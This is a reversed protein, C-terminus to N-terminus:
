KSVEASQKQAEQLDQSGSSTNRAFNIDEDRNSAGQESGFTSIVFIETKHHETHGSGEHGAKHHVNAPTSQESETYSPKSAIGFLSGLYQFFGEKIQRDTSATKGEHALSPLSSAKKLEEQTTSRSLEETSLNKNECVSIRLKKLLAATTKSTHKPDNDHQFVAWRGLRQLSPIMSQKLIDCYMNANMTGEIFQLEGTGAASMCGWVMVSGGGHKVTPLVCKDKYEEGPQRWVCKVGDVVGEVETAISAASMHRNGLALRQIHRQVCASLKKPRGHRPRNQTSGTRNFRQMTKAVTSCSLKLTKAIKKYGLGDKHLAVIRKKLDESLEKGHPAMNFKLLEPLPNSEKRHYLASTTENEKPDFMLEEERKM